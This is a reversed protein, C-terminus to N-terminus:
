YRQNQFDIGASLLLNDSIYPTRTDQLMFLKFLDYNKQIMPIDRVINSFGMLFPRGLCGMMSESCSRACNIESAWERLKGCPSTVRARSTRIAALPTDLEPIASLSLKLWCDTQRHRFRNKFWPSGPNCSSSRGPRGRDIESSFIADRTRRVSRVFGLCAVCQVKREIAM